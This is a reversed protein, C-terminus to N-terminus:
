TVGRQFKYEVNANILVEALPPLRDIITITNVQTSTALDLTGRNRDSELAEEIREIIDNRRRDLETGRVFARISYSITGTRSGMAVDLRTEQGTTILVAPFQTIALEEVVFPERTVLIPKPDNMDRIVDIINETIRERYNQM